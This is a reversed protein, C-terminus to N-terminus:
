YERFFDNGRRRKTGKRHANIWVPGYEQMETNKHRFLLYNFLFRKGGFTRGQVWIERTAREPFQTHLTTNVDTETQRNEIINKVRQLDGFSAIM